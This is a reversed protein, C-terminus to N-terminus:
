RTAPASPGTGRAMSPPLATAATNRRSIRQRRLVDARALGLAGPAARRSRHGQGEPRRARGCAASRRPQRYLVVALRLVRRRAGAHCLGAGSQRRPRRARQDLLLADGTTPHIALGVCNRIGTAFVGPRKGDPDFALVDARDTEHGWSAGLPHNDIWGAPSGAAQWAKPTTAARASRSWCGSATTPSPSTGPRIAAAM